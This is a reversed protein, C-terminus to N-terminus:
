LLLVLDSIVMHVGVCEAPAPKNTPFRTVDCGLRLKQSRGETAAKLTKERGASPQLCFALHLAAASLLVLNEKGDEARGDM